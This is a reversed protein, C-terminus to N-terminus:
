TAGAAALAQDFADAMAEYTYPQVAAHAAAGLRECLAVDALLLDISRALAAPDDPAIVLGTEGHRVLGGAVAGVATTAIMPRAQEFAENCVLGWPEKFRPTPISPLLAFASAAYAVPLAPRPLPGLLRVGGTGAVRDRLPGDGVVVLTADGRVAPWAEAIVEVGKEPVLRGAHLVLPGAGLQHAARFAALEDDTVARRFLAPEVSQPAVFVDGDRGRISTVFRRVHEGYALVADAHRFIRRTVPLAVAHAVSRPQHWISAWFVFPTGYRHAGAYAAPLLAGGAFPAIVADFRRGLALAESLGNLRRAPFDASALQADLDAFWAPAYREGGGYCLVEVDHRRALLRYLPLRYDSLYTTLIAITVPLSSPSLARDISPAILSRGDSTAIAVHRPSVAHPPEDCLELVCAVAVGAADDDSVVADEVGPSIALVSVKLTLPSRGMVTVVVNVLAGGSTGLASFCFCWPVM